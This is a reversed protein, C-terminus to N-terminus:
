TPAALPDIEAAASDMTLWTYGSVDAATVCNMRYRHRNMCSVNSNKLHWSVVTGHSKMTM